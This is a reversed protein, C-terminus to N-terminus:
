EKMAIQEVGLFALSEQIAFITQHYWLLYLM